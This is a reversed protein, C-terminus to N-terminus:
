SIVYILVKLFIILGGWALFFNGWTTLEGKTYKEKAIFKGGLSFGSAVTLLGLATLYHIDM